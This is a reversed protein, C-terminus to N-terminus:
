GIMNFWGIIYYLLGVVIIIFLSFLVIKVVPNNIDWYGDTKFSANDMLNNFTEKNRKNVELNMNDPFYSDQTEDNSFTDDNDESDVDIDKDLEKYFNDDFFSM